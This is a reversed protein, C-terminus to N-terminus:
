LHVQFGPFLTERRTSNGGTALVLTSSAAFFHPHVSAFATLSALMFVIDKWRQKFAQTKAEDEITPVANHLTQM